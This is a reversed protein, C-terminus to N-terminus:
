KLLIMKKAISHVNNSIRYIYLGSALDKGAFELEYTGSSLATFRYSYVQRGTIDFVDFSINNDDTKVYDFRVKTVPNFPNPYNQYLRFESPINSSINNIGIPPPTIFSYKQAINLANPNKFGGFLYFYNSDLGTVPAFSSINAATDGSVPLFGTWVGITDQFRLGWIENVSASGNMGPGILMFDQWRAGCVRYVPVSFPLNSFLQWSIIITDASYLNVNGKFVSNVFGASYGGAVFLSTDFETKNFESHATTINIPYVNSNIWTNFAPNYIRVLNIAGSFGSVSGGIVAILSDNIVSVAAEHVFPAPITDAISWTGTLLSFKFILGDASTFTSDISGVLYLADKVKVLKGSWRPGPLSAAQTYTGSNLDYWRCTDTPIGSSNSGGCILIRGSLSDYYTNTGLLSQPMDNLRSWVGNVYLNTDGPNFSLNRNEQLGTKSGIFIPNEQSFASFILGTLLLFLITLQKM